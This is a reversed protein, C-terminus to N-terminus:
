YVDFDRASFVKTEAGTKVESVLHADTVGGFLQHYLVLMKPKAEAAIRGLEETSTHFQHLYEPWDKRDGKLEAMSYAEHLLVDCAGCAEIVARSPACDGSIVITKDPTKIKYGFAQPWSGHHVAFVSIELGNERFVVGPEEEHVNAQYGVTTGHELGHVRIDVDEAWAAEIHDVMARTGKPGYVELPATRHLVWPSFILDPLGLTHDSHLHTLFVKQLNPALLADIHLRLAAAQARRVVGPGSDFLYAKGGYIVAVAPGSREPDARPTGSGLIVVDTAAMGLGAAVVLLVLVKFM